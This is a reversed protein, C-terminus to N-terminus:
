TRESVTGPFASGHKQNFLMKNKEKKKKLNLLLVFLFIDYTKTFAKCFVPGYMLRKKM